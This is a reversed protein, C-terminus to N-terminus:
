ADDRKLLRRPAVLRYGRGAYKAVARWNVPEDAWLSVWVGRGNTPAFFQKTKLMASADDPTVRFAISPRGRIMEFVCFMKKGVRFSPHGWAITECCEPLALCLRRARAFVPRQFLREPASAAGAAQTM